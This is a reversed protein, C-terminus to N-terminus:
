LVTLLTVWPLTVTAPPNGATTHTLRLAKGQVRYVGVWSRDEPYVKVGKPTKEFTLREGRIVLM